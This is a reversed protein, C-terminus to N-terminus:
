SRLSCTFNKFINRIPPGAADLIERVQPRDLSRFPPLDTLLSEDMNKM